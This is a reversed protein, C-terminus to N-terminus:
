FMLMKLADDQNAGKLGLSIAKELYEAAREIDEQAKYVAGIHFLIEPNNPALEHAENLLWLARTNIGQKYYAWGLTDTIAPNKPM